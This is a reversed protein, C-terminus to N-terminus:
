SPVELPRFDSGLWGRLTQLVMEIAAPLAAEVAPTLETILEDCDGVECGLVLVRSPLCGLARALMFGLSPDAQHLDSFFERRDTESMDAPDPVRPELMVLTGPTRNRVVADVVLLAEYGSMLEQVLSIGAIGTEIIRVSPPLGMTELRRVVEVGFMDDGRLVNGVGVVLIRPQAAPGAATIDVANVTTTVDAGGPYETAVARHEM